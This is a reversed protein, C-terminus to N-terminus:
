NSPFRAINGSVTDVILYQWGVPPVNTPTGATPTQAPVGVITYGNLANFTMTSSTVDLTIVTGAGNSGLTVTQQSILKTETVSNGFLRGGALLTLQDTESEIHVIGADSHVYVNSPGPATNGGSGNITVTNGQVNAVGTVSVVQADGGIALIQSGALGQGSFIGQAKCVISSASVPGIAGVSGSTIIVTENATVGFDNIWQFHGTPNVSGVEVNNVRYSWGDVTSTGFFLGGTGVNTMNTLWVNDPTPAGGFYVNGTGNDYLLVFPAALAQINALKLTPSVIITQCAVDSNGIVIAQAALAGVDVSLASDVTVGNVATMVATSSSTVNFNNASVNLLQTSPDFKMYEVGNAQLSIPQNDLTGFIGPAGLANGAIGWANSPPPAVSPFIPQKAFQWQGFFVYDADPDVFPDVVSFKGSPVVSSTAYFSVANSMGGNTTVVLPFESPASLAPVVATLSTDSAVVVNSCPLGGVSVVLSTVGTQFGTGTLTLVDGGKYYGFIPNVKTISPIAM